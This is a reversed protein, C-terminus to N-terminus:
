KLYWDRVATGYYPHIIEHSFVDGSRIYVMVSDRIHHPTIHFTPLVHEILVKRQKTTGFDWNPIRIPMEDEHYFDDSFIQQRGLSGGGSITINLERAKGSANRFDWGTQKLLPHQPVIVAPNTLTALHIVNALSMLNNGTRGFWPKIRLVYNGRCEAPEPQVSLLEISCNEQASVTDNTISVSLLLAALM